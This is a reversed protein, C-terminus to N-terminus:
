RFDESRQAIADYFGALGPEIAEGAARCRTLLEEAPPSDAMTAVLDAHLRMLNKFGDTAALTADGILISAPIRESVGKLTLTGAPLIALGTAAEATARALLIDYGVRRCGSEIRAALNVTEGVVTYNFRDRSGINGVCVTGSALGLALRVPKPAAGSANFRSLAHRMRLAAVAARVEHDPLDLPANWFAMIADGIFKDITGQEVLIEDGLETFLRNLLEVLEHATMTESLPTFDRIDSFMVTVPKIVGGLELRHGGREIQTLVSPAVYHAFSRRIMRKDRDAIVFQYATLGAFALFGGILPFTADFLIGARTFAIWSAGTVLVASLLGAAISAVPGAISMVLTVILGLLLFSIVESAEVLGDRRLFGGSLIQEIMQAHISVGPVNEGLATTRIDLLGAASTGILVIQGELRARLGPDEGEALVSRAPVYLDPTDHRYHLWLSGDPTTPIQFQGLRIQEVFGSLDPAGSIIYTTEGLALRLAEISLAPLIGDPTKWLIPIRRIVTATDFPSINVVGISAAAEQLVPLIPVAHPISPLGLAPAEGIEVVGAKGTIPQAASDTSQSTGLVVLSRSIAEAFHRDSDIPALDSPTLGPALLGKASLTAALRAPSMRDPEPFLVDVAVVAAGYGRLRDVLQALLDRPWPWQGLEQLSAEDIDVVRVPLDAAERPRLRQLLDFYAERVSQIPQPDQARLLTLIGLLICGLVVVTKRM